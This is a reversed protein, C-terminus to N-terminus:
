LFVRGSKFICRSTLCLFSLAPSSEKQVKLATKLLSIFSKLIKLDQTYTSLYHRDEFLGTVQGAHNHQTYGYKNICVCACFNFAVFSTSIFLVVWSLVAAYLVMLYNFVLISNNKLWVKEHNIVSYYCANLWVSTTHADSLNYFNCLFFLICFSFLSCLDLNLVLSQWKNNNRFIQNLYRSLQRLFLFSTTWIKQAFPTELHM